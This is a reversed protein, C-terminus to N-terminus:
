RELLKKYERNAGENSQIYREFVCRVRPESLHKHCNIEAIKRKKARSTTNEDYTTLLDYLPLYFLNISEGIKKIEEGKQKIESENLYNLYNSSNVLTV